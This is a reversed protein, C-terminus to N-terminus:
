RVEVLREGQEILRVIQPFLPLFWDLLASRSANGIRLSVVVPALTSQGQRTPFITM